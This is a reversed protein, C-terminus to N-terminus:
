TFTMKSISAIMMVLTVGNFLCSYFAQILSGIVKMNEYIAQM